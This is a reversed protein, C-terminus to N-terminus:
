IWLFIRHLAVLSFLVVLGETRNLHNRKSLSESRRCEESSSSDTNRNISANEAVKNRQVSETSPQPEKNSKFTDDDSETTSSSSSLYKRGISDRKMENQSNCSSGSRSAARSPPRPLLEDVPATPINVLAQDDENKLSFSSSSSSSRVNNNNTVGLSISSSSSSLKSSSSSSGLSRKKRQKTVEHTVPISARNSEVTSNSSRSDISYKRNFMPESSHHVEDKFPKKSLSQQSQKSTRSSPGSSRRNKVNREEEKLLIPTQALEITTSSSRSEDTNKRTSDSESSHHEKDRFLKISSSQRSGKSTNSSSGSLRRDKRNVDDHILSTSTEIVDITRSSSRSDDTNNRNLVPASSHHLKDPFSKMPISKRSSAKSPVRETEITSLISRIGDIM